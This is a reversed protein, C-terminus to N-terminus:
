PRKTLSDLWNVDPFVADDLCYLDYMGYENYWYFDDRVVPEKEHGCWVGNEDKAIYKINPKIISWILVSM